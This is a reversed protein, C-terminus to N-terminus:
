WGEILHVICDAVRDTAAEPPLDAWWGYGSCSDWDDYSPGTWTERDWGWTDTGMGAGIIYARMRDPQEIRIAFCGGGTHEYTAVIGRVTLADIVGAYDIGSQDM